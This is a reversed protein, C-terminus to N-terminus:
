RRIADPQREPEADRFAPLQSCADAIRSLTPWPATDGRWRRANYLQPVLCVDALSPQQGHCFEGRDPDGGLMAEFADLGESIWHGVWRTVTPADCGLESALYRQVRTNQLPQVDCCLMCALARVRARGRLDAPLLPPDPQLEELYELIALSQNLRFDGDVLLPVLKQPNLAAYAPQLQETAGPALNVFRQEVALRKFNLAIRVRYSASSRYYTYLARAGTM